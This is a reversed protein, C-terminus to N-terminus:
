LQDDQDKIKYSTPLDDSPWPHHAGRSRPYFCSFESRELYSTIQGIAKEIRSDRRQSDEELKELRYSHLKAWSELSDIRKDVKFFLAITGTAIPIVISAILGFDV